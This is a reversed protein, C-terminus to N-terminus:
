AYMVKRHRKLQTKWHMAEQPSHPLAGLLNRLENLAKPTLTNQIFAGLLTVSRELLFKKVPACPVKRLPHTKVIHNKLQQKLPKSM